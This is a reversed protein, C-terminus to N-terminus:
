IRRDWSTKLNFMLMVLLMVPDVSLSMANAMKLVREAKPNEL